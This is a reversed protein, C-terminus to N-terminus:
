KDDISTAKKMMAMFEEFDIEGDGNNDVEAIAEALQEATYIDKFEEGSLLVNLEQSDIKGSGDTDFM